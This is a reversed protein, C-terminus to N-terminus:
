FNRLVPNNALDPLLATRLSQIREALVRIDQAAICDPAMEVLAQQRSVAIGMNPDNRVMGLYNLHFSLFKRVAADLRHFTTQAEERDQVQNALILFDQLGTKASLVKIVAYADTLSTPEPTLVVIRKAAAQAMSLLTPNLGAALDLIVFSYTSIIPQLKELLLGRQDEDMEVLEPVGSASPLLDLNPAIPQVIGAASIDSSLLDQITIESSIGLLVDLNALGLDCDLLLCKHGLQSLCYGLNASLSSKGVGGKGSFVAISLTKNITTNM